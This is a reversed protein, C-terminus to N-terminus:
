KELFYAFPFMVLGAVSLRYTVYVHPNLGQKFAAETIFYVVTSLIQGLIMSLHPMYRAFSAKLACAMDTAQTAIIKRGRETQKYILFRM